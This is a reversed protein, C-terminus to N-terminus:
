SIRQITLCIIQQLKTIQTYKNKVFEQSTNKSSMSINICIGQHIKVYEQHKVNNNNKYLNKNGIFILSKSTCYRICVFVIVYRM